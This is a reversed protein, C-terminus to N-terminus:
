LEYARKDTSLFKGDVDLPDYHIVNPVTSLIEQITLILNDACKSDLPNGKARQINTEAEQLRYICYLSLTIYIYIYIYIFTNIEVATHDYFLM